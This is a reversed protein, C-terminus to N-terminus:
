SPSGVIESVFTNLIGSSPERSLSVAQNALVLPILANEYRSSTLKSLAAISAEFGILSDPSPTVSYEGTPVNLAVLHGPGLRVATKSGYHVRNRYTSEDFASGTVEEVLFQTSPLFFDGTDPFFNAHESIFNAFDGTKEVGVLHLEHGSARIWGVFDRIPEVLRSLAARLLLPGDKIFLIQELASLNGENTFHAPLEFISLTEMLSMVATAADEKSWEESGENAVVQLYDSLFHDFGCSPCKFVQQSYPLEFFHGCSYCNMSAKEFDDSASRWKRHVLFDLVWYLNSYAPSLIGNICHRLSEKVSLGPRRVGALPLIAPRYTIKDLLKALLRPDMMPDEKMAELDTIRLLCTGVQVFALTKDRRVPSPVVSLGGDVTVVYRIDDPQTNVDVYGTVAMGHPAIPSEDAQFSQLFEIVSEEQVLKMHAIKSAKEMPLGNSSNYAM